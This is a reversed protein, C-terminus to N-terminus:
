DNRLLSYRREIMGEQMMHNTVQAPTLNTGEELNKEHCYIQKQLLSFNPVPFRKDITSKFNSAQKIHFKTQLEEVRCADIMMEDNEIKQEIVAEQVRGTKRKVSHQGLQPQIQTLLHNTFGKYTSQQQQIRKSPVGNKNCNQLYYYDELYPNVPLYKAKHQVAKCFDKYDEKLHRKRKRYEEDQRERVTEMLKQNYSRLHEKQKEKHPFFIDTLQIVRVGQHEYM